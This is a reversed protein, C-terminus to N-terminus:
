WVGLGGIRELLMVSSMQMGDARRQIMSEIKLMLHPAEEPRIEAEYM